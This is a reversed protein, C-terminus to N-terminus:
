SSYTISQNTEIHLNFDRTNIRPYEYDELVKKNLLLTTPYRKDKPRM